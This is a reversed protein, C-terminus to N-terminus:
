AAHKPNKAVAKSRSAGPFTNSSKSAAKHPQKPAKSKAAVRTTAPTQRQTKSPLASHKAKPTAGSPRAAGRQPTAHAAPASTAKHSKQTAHPQSSAALAVGTRTVGWLAIALVLLLTAPRRATSTHIM